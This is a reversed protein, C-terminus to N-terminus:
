RVLRTCATQDACNCEGRAIEESKIRSASERRKAVRTRGRRSVRLRFRVRTSTITVDAPLNVDGEIMGEARREGGYIVNMSISPQGLTNGQSVNGPSTPRSVHM